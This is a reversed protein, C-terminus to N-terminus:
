RAFCPAFDPSFLSRCCRTTTTGERPEEERTWGVDLPRRTHQPPLRRGQGKSATPSDHLHRRPLLWLLRQGSEDSGRIDSERNGDDPQLRHPPQRHQQHQPADEEGWLRAAVPGSPSSIRGGSPAAAAPCPPAQRGRARGQSNRKGDNYWGYARLGAGVRPLADSRTKM